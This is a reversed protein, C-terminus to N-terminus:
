NGLMGAIAMMELSYDMELETREAFLMQHYQKLLRAKEPGHETLRAAWELARSLVKEDATVENVLGLRLAENATLIKGGILLEFSVKKPVWKKLGISSFGPLIGKQAEPFGYKASEGMFAMDCWTIIGAALGLAYGRVAAIVPVPCIEFSQAFAKLRHYHKRKIELSANQTRELDRIDRGASFSDGNGTVVVCGIHHKQHVSLMTEQLQDMMGSHIANKKDARNLTILLVHDGVTKEQIWNEM